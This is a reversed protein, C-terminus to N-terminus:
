RTRCLLALFTAAIPAAHARGAGPDSVGVPAADPLLLLLFLLLVARELRPGHDAPKVVGWAGYRYHGAPHSSLFFAAFVPLDRGEWKSSLLFAFVGLSRAPGEEGPSEAM